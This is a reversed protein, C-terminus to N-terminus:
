WQYWIFQLIRADNEHGLFDTLPKYFGFNAKNFEMTWLVIKLYSSATLGFYDAFLFGRTVTWFHWPAFLGLTTWFRDKRPACILWDPNTCDLHRAPDPVQQLIYLFCGYRDLSDVGNKCESATATSRYPDSYFYNIQAQLQDITVAGNFSFIQSM